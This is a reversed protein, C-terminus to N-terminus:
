RNAESTRAVTYHHPGNYLPRFTQKLSRSINIRNTRPNYKCFWIETNINAYYDKLCFHIEQKKIILNRKQALMVELKVNTEM